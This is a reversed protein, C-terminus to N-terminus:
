KKAKKRYTIGQRGGLFPWQKTRKLVIIANSVAQQCLGMAEGIVTPSVVTGPSYLRLACDLVKGAKCDGRVPNLNRKVKCDKLPAVIHRWACEYEKVVTPYSYEDPNEIGDEDYYEANKM